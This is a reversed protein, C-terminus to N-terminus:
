EEPLNQRETARDIWQGLVLQIEEYEAMPVDAALALVALQKAHSEWSARYQKRSYATNYRADKTTNSM